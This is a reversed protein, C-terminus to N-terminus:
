KGSLTNALSHLVETISEAEDRMGASDFAEAASSLLDVAKALKAFGHKNEVQSSVLSKSMSQFIENETSGRKFM